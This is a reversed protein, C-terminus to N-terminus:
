IAVAMKITSKSGHASGVYVGPTMRGDGPGGKQAEKVVTLIANSTFTASTLVDVGDAGGAAVIADVLPTISSM